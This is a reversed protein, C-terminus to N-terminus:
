TEALLGMRGPNDKSSVVSGGKGRFASEGITGLLGASTTMVIIANGIAIMELLSSRVTRTPDCNRINKIWLIEPVEGSPHIPLETEDGRVWALKGFLDVGGGRLNVFRGEMKNLGAPDAM